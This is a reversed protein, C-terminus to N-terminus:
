LTGQPTGGDGYTPHRRMRARHPRREDPPPSLASGESRDPNQWWRPGCRPPSPSNKRHHRPDRSGSGDESESPTPTYAVVEEEVVEVM